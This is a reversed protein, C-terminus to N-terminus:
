SYVRSRNPKRSASVFSSAGSSHKSMTRTPFSVKQKSIYLHLRSPVKRASLRVCKPHIEPRDLASATKIHVSGKSQPRALIAGITYYDGGEGIPRVKGNEYFGLATQLFELDPQMFILILLLRSIRQEALLNVGCGVSGFDPASNVPVGSSQALVPDTSRVFAITEALQTGFYSGHEDLRRYM